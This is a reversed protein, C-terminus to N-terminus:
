RRVDCTLCRKMEFQLCSLFSKGGEHLPLQDTRNDYLIVHERTELEAHWPMRYHGDTNKM